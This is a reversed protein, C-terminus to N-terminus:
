ATVAGVIKGGGLVEDGRYFVVSQGPTIARQPEHFRVECGGEPLVRVRCGVPQHRYRIKCATEFEGGDPPVIWGVDGALLGAAALYEEEGVVVVNRGADIATVYLPRSWAIGLGKRQGVTYRHTGRHRGIVQGGVHVIDGPTGALGGSEELFAAYDDGPIFCVEQSDGKDAVPLAFERALRRVEEKSEMEGLPFLVRALQEQSLAYLFYSQDKGICRAQRLHCVGAGDVTKRVYHGTALLDAGAARAQELLLGFKVFRNCRVCPNPTRGCRYEDIFDQIILHRFDPELDIVHHPIGLHRAVTAADHAASGVGTGSPAFLRMTIGFVEFGQRQLLAATVSSDVGGSMAVAVAPKKDRAM